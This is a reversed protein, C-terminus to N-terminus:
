CLVRCLLHSSRLSEIYTGVQLKTEPRKVRKTAPSSAAQNGAAENTRPTRTAVVANHNEPPSRSRDGDDEAEAEEEDDDDEDDNVDGATPTATTTDPSRALVPSCASSAAGNDLSAPSVQLPIALQQKSCILSCLRECASVSRRITLDTASVVEAVICGDVIHYTLLVHIQSQRSKELVRIVRIMRASHCLLATTTMVKDSENNVEKDMATSLHQKGSASVPEQRPPAATATAKAVRHRHHHDQSSESDSGSQSDGAPATRRIKKAPEVFDPDDSESDSPFDRSTVHFSFLIPMRTPRVM